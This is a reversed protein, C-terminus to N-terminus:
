IGIGRKNIVSSGIYGDLTWKGGSVKFSQKNVLALFVLICSWCRIVSM